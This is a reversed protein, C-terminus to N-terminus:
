WYLITQLQAAREVHGQRLISKLASSEKRPSVFAGREVDEKRSQREGGWRKAETLSFSIISVKSRHLRDIEKSIHAHEWCYPKESSSTTLQM